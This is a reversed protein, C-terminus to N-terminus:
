HRPGSLWTGPPPLSTREACHMRLHHNSIVHCQPVPTQSVQHLFQLCGLLRVGILCCQCSGQQTANNGVRASHPVSQNIQTSISKSNVKLQPVHPIMAHLRVGFLYCLFCGVSLCVSLCRWADRFGCQCSGQKTANNGVRAPHCKQGGKSPPM